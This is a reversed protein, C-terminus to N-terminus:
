SRAELPFHCAVGHERTFRNPYNVLVPKTTECISPCGEDKYRTCRVRYSCGTEGAEQVDAESDDAEVGHRNEELSLYSSSSLLRFTYPHRCRGARVERRDMIEIINGLYMVAVRDCIQRVAGIDHSIYLFTLELDRKLNSLLTLVQLRISADLSALPEDAVIFSPRVALVRAIGVRRREGGSLVSPYEDLKRKQLNVSAVLEQLRQELREEHAEVKESRRGIVRYARDAVRDWGSVPPTAGGERDSASAKGNRQAALKEGVSVAEALMDRVRMHPNLASYPNQFIMQMDKRTRRMEGGDLSLLDTGCFTVGGETPEILRLICRGFTTKGCGSEGILGLAEGRRIDLTVGNLITVAEVDVKLFSALSRRGLRPFQKVLGKVHLLVPNHPVRETM